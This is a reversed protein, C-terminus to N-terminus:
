ELIEYKIKPWLIWIGLATMLFLINLLKATISNDPFILEKWKVDAVGKQSSGPLVFEVTSTTINEKVNIGKLFTLYQLTRLLKNTSDTHLIENTGDYYDVHDVKANIKGTLNIPVIKGELLQNLSAKGDLTIEPSKTLVSIYSSDRNVPKIEHFHIEENNNDYHTYNGYTVEASAGDLLKVTMDFGKPVSIAIYNDRSLPLPIYLAPGSSNIIVEYSGSLKLNKVLTNEFSLEKGLSYEHSSENSNTKNNNKQNNSIINVSGAYFAVGDSGNTLSLSSSKVVAHGEMTLDRTHILPLEKSTSNLSNEKVYNDAKLDIMKPFNPLTSFYKGPNRSIADFYGGINLFVIKGEYYKKQVALPSVVENKKNVYFSLSSVNADKSEIYTTNGLVKLPQQSEKDLALIGEFKITNGPQISLLKSFGGQFKNDTDLVILTGGRKAYELYRAIDDKNTPDFALIVNGKSFASYDNDLFIDYGVSSLALINFPYYNHYYIEKQNYRDSPDSIRGIKVPEFEGLNNSCSIGVKVIPGKEFLIRPIKQKLLNNIYINITDKLLAIKLTYWVGKERIIDQNQLLSFESTDGSMRKNGSVQSTVLTHNMLRTYYKNHGDDWAVGCYDPLNKTRNESIVRFTGEIYSTNQNPIVKSWLTSTKKDGYLIVNRKGTELKLYKNSDIKKFSVNNYFLIKTSSISPLLSSINKQYILAVNTKSTAPVVHPVKLVVYNADQYIKQFNEIAFRIIDSSFGNTITNFYKKQLIIFQSNSSNLLDYFGELTSADLVGTAKQLINQPLGTFGQLKKVTMGITTTGIQPRLAINYIKPDNLNNSDLFRFMNIESPSPFDRRALALKFNHTEVASAHYGIFLLISISSLTIVSGIILGCILPAKLGAPQKNKRNEQTTGNSSLPSTSTITQKTTKATVLRSIIKYILLSAFGVMGLMVYKSTRHEDYHTGAFLAIIIIIGFIFVEKQFKKFFYSLVFALGILGTIGLKMPFLYWPTNLQFGSTQVRIVGLPVEAWVIFTFVYWYAVVLVVAIGVAIKIRFRISYSSSSKRNVSKKLLRNFVSFKNIGYRIKRTSFFKNFYVKSVYLAWTVGVYLFSLYLLPIGFILNSTFYNEVYVHDVLFTVAIAALFAAYVFHKKPLGFIIPIVSVIIIFLYMEDHSLIGLLSILTFIVFYNINSSYRRKQNKIQEGGGGGGKEEKLLGLLAFGVPLVILQLGTSFDPHAVLNFNSPITIDFTKVSALHLLELSSAYSTIVPHHLASSNDYAISLAYVWGLGGSLMFLVSALLAADRQLRRPKPNKSNSDHKSNTNNNSSSNSIGFWRTFFYYFALVPMINLFSISAYANVSPNDSLSIFAALFASFFPPYFDDRASNAIDRFTGSIFLLARGHHFWQDGIIIGGYVYYTSLVVLAFLAVFVLIIEPNISRNSTTNNNKRIFLSAIAKFNSKFFLNLDFKIIKKNNLLTKTQLVFVILIIAYIIVLPLIINIGSVPMGFSAVIYGVSGTIFISFIYGLLVKLLAKSRLQQLQRRPPATISKNSNNSEIGKEEKLLVSCVLAYGPLFFSLAIAAGLKIITDVSNFQQQWPVFLKLAEIEEMNPRFLTSSFSGIVVILLAVIYGVVFLIDTLNIKKETSRKSCEEKGRVQNYDIKSQTSVVDGLVSRKTISIDDVSGIVTAATTLSNSDSSSTSGNSSGTDVAYYKTLGFVLLSIIVSIPVTIKFPIFLYSFIFYISLGSILAGPVAMINTPFKSFTFIV